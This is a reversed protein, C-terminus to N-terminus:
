LDWEQKHEAEIDAKRKADWFAKNEKSNVLFHIKAIIPFTLIAGYLWYRFIYDRRLVEKWDVFFFIPLEAWCVYTKRYVRGNYEVAPTMGSVPWQIKKGRVPNISAFARRALLTRIANSNM